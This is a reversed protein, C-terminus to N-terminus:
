WWQQGGGGGGNGGGFGGGGGFQTPPASGYGGGGGGGGGSGFGTGGTVNTARMKNKRPDHIEDYQVQDGSALPNGQVDNAHVFLDETGADPVIFGYGKTDNFFKVTGNLAM